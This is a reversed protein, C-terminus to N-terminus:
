IFYICHTLQLICCEKIFLAFAVAICDVVLRYTWVACGLIVDVGESCHCGSVECCHLLKCVSPLLCCSLIAPQQTSSCASTLLCVSM